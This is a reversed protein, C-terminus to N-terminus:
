GTIFWPQQIIVNTSKRISDGNKVYPESRIRPRPHSSCHQELSFKWSWPHVHDAHDRAVIYWWLTWYDSMYLLYKLADGCGWKKHSQHFNFRGVVISPFIPPSNCCHTGVPGKSQIAQIAAHGPARILEWSYKVPYSGSPFHRSRHQQQHDLFHLVWWYGLVVNSCPWLWSIPQGMGSYFNTNSTTRTLATFTTQFTFCAQFM